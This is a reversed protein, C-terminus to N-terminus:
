KLISKVKSGFTACLDTADWFTWLLLVHRRSAELVANVIYAGYFAGSAGKKAGKKQRRVARTGGPAWNAAGPALSVPAWNALARYAQAWNAAFFWFPGLKGRGLKGLVASLCAITSLCHSNTFKSISVIISLFPDLFIIFLVNVTQLNRIEVTSYVLYTELFSISCANMFASVTSSKRFTVFIEQFSHNSTVLSWMDRCIQRFTHKKGYIQIVM